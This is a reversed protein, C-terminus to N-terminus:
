INTEFGPDVKTERHNGDIALGVQVYQEVREVPMPRAYLYGQYALCGNGALFQRQGETEVGEAIVDLGMSKALTVIARAIVADNADTLVDRIFSKDIKLQDIPLRKLYSLSSYGTGFDDLSFGIGVAKLEFMKEIISEVNNLLLSETIELKLKRPNIGSNEMTKLTHGVFEDDLFQAASVNVSLSLHATEPRAAWAGLQACATEMVFRGIPLILGTTEIVSIFRDPTVVGREPHLWRLLAEAGTMCGAENVQPQYYLVFQSKQVAERLENDLVARATVAEQMDLDFFRFANRGSAKAQYMATDARKMLEDASNSQDSFLAVGISGTCHYSYTHTKGAASTLELQYPQSVADLIKEVIIKAQLAAEEGEGICELLVVFEDGGQRAVTDTKRICSEIRRAVAVLFQDGVDHGQTDNLAKFDDMDLMLLAGCQKHRSASAIAHQLRDNLRRRNPLNTLHDNFALMRIQEDVQKRETIDSHIGIIRLAHGHADRDVVRGISRIWQWAGNPARVRYESEAAGGHQPAGKFASQATARDDPHIAGLWNQFGHKADELVMGLSRAYRASAVMEGSQPNLDFWDQHAADLALSLRETLMENRATSELDSVLQLGVVSGHQLMLVFLIALAIAITLGIPDPILLAHILPPLLLGGYFMVMAMLFTSMIMVSVASVGVLITLIALYSQMQGDVWFVFVSSSWGLGVLFSLFILRRGQTLRDLRQPGLRKYIYASRGLLFEFTCFTVFWIAAIKWGVAKGGIWALLLIGLPATIAGAFSREAFFRVRAAMVKQDVLADNLRFFEPGSPKATEGGVWFQLFKPYTLCTWSTRWFSQVGALLPRVIRTKM